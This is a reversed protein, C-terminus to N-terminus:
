IKFALSRQNHAHNIERNANQKFKKTKAYIFEAYVAIQFGFSAPM